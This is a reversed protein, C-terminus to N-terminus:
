STEHNSLIDKKKFIIDGALVSGVILIGSLIFGNLVTIGSGNLFLSNRMVMLFNGPFIPSMCYISGALVAATFMIGFIPKTLLSIVMQVLSLSISVLIPLLVSSLILDFVTVELVNIGCLCGQVKLRPLLSFEGFAFTFIAIMIYVSLYYSVVTCITWICKCLWWESREGFAFLTMYGCRSMDKFPYFSVYFALLLNLMVFFADPVFFHDKIEQVPKNGKFIWLLYDWFTLSSELDIYQLADQYLKLFRLLFFLTLVMPLIFKKKQYFLGWKLDYEIGLKFSHGSIKM